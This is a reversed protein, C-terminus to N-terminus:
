KRTPDFLDKQTQGTPMPKSPGLPEPDLSTDIGARKLFPACKVKDYLQLLRGKAKSFVIDYTM